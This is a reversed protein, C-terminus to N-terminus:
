SRACFTPSSALSFSRFLQGRTCFHSCKPRRSARSAFDSIVCEPLFRFPQNCNRYDAPDARRPRASAELVFNSASVLLGRPGLKRYKVWTPSGLPPWSPTQLVEQPTCFTINETPLYAMERALAHDTATQLRFVESGGWFHAGFSWAPLDSPSWLM